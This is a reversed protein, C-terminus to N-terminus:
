GSYEVLTVDEGSLEEEIIERIIDWDGGGLGAGIKPMGIRRGAFHESVDKMCSRVAEYDVHIKDRGYRYQTYANVVILWKDEGLCSRGLSYRGLKEKQGKQTHLDADYAEPFEEKIRRAIGSGM